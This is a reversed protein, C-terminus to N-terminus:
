LAVQYRSISSGFHVSGRAVVRKASVYQLVSISFGRNDTLFHILISKRLTDGREVCSSQTSVSQFNSDAGFLGIFGRRGNKTGFSSRM